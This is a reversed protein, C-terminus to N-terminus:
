RKIRLGGAFMKKLIEMTRKDFVNIYIYTSIGSIVVNLFSISILGIWSNVSIFQMLVMGILVTIVFLCFMRVMNIITLCIPRNLIKKNSYWVFMIDRFFYSCSTGILVGYIGLKFVLIISICINLVAEILAHYQTERFHGAATAMTMQPIRITSLIANIMFCFTLIYDAYNIGDMIGVYLEIFPYLAISCVGWIISLIYYFIREYDDYIKRSIESNRSSLLHGFNATIANSLSQTLFGSINAIIMHYVSYISVVSYGFVNSLIISDTNNVVMNCIQHMLVNWRNNGVNYNPPISKDLYKYHSKTYRNILIMRIAYIIAPVLQVFYIDFKLLIFIIRLIGQLLIGIANILNIVYLKKDAQLLIRYKSCFFYEITQTIGSVLFLLFCMYYSLGDSVFIPYIIALLIVLVSFVIGIRIYYREVANICANIEKKNNDHLPKYLSQISSSGFGSEVLTLYTLLGSITSTLGHIKPGYYYILMKPVVFAFCMTLIQSFIAVIFNLKVNKGENM